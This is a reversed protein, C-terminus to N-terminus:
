SSNRPLAMSAAMQASEYDYGQRCRRMDAFRCGHGCRGSPLADFEARGVIVARGDPLPVAGSAAEVAAVPDREATLCAGLLSEVERM